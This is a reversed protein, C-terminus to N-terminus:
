LIPVDPSCPNGKCESCSASILGPEEPPLDSWLSTMEDRSQSTFIDRPIPQTGEEDGDKGARVDYACPLGQSDCSTCTPRSRDCNANQVPIAGNEIYISDNRRPLINGRCFKCDTTLSYNDDYRESHETPPPGPDSMPNRILNNGFLPLPDLHSPIDRSLAAPPEDLASTGFDVHRAPAITPLVQLTESSESFPGTSGM